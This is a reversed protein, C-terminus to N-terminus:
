QKLSSHVTQGTEKTPKLIKTGKLSSIISLFFAPALQNAIIIWISYLERFDMQKELIAKYMRKKKRRVFFDKFIPSITQQNSAEAIIRALLDSYKGMEIGTSLLNDETDIDVDLQPVGAALAAIEIRNKLSLRNFSFKEKGISVEVPEQNIIDAAIREKM